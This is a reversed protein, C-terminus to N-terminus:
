YEGEDDDVTYDAWNRATTVVAYGDPAEKNTDENLFVSLEMKKGKTKRNKKGTWNHDADISQNITIILFCNHLTLYSSCSYSLTLLITSTYVGTLLKDSCHSWVYMCVFVTLM